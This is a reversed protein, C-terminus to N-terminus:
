AESPASQSLLYTVPTLTDGPPPTTALPIDLGNVVVLHVGSIGHYVDLLVTFQSCMQVHITDDRRKVEKVVQDHCEIYEPSPKCQQM